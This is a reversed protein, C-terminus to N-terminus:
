FVSHQKENSLFGLDYRFIVFCHSSEGFGYSAVNEKRMQIFVLSPLGSENQLLFRKLYVFNQQLWKSITPLNKTTHFKSSVQSKTQMIKAINEIGHTKNFVTSTFYYDLLTFIRTNSVKLGSINDCNRKFRRFKRSSALSLLKCLM